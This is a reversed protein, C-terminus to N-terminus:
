TQGIIIVTVQTVLLVTLESSPSVWGCTSDSCRTEGNYALYKAHVSLMGLWERTWLSDHVHKCLRMCTYLLVCM